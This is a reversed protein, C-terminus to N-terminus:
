LSKGDFLTTNLGAPDVDDLCRVNISVMESGDRDKGRGFPEIGCDRCFLHQIRGTNFRYDVLSDEGKLLKFQEAPVFTLMLGRKACHSCNCSIVHALDTQAEFRVNGCHCGGQHIGQGTM